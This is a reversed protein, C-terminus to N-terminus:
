KDYLKKWKNSTIIVYVEIGLRRLVLLAIIISLGNLIGAIQGAGAYGGASFVAGLLPALLSTGCSPCGAGLVALGTVIGATQLDESLAVRAQKGKTKRFKKRERYALVLSGFILGQLVALGFIGIWDGFEQGFGLLKELSQGLIGIKGGLDVVWFLELNALGPAFFELIMGMGVGAVIATWWFVRYETALMLGRGMVAWGDLWKAMGARMKKRDKRETRNELKQETKQKENPKGTSEGQRGLQKSIKEQM